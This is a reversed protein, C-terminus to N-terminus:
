ALGAEGLLQDYVAVTQEVAYTDHPAFRAVVHDRGRRGMRALREPPTAIAEALATALAAQNATPVEWGTVGPQVIGDVNAAQSLLAPLGCAV